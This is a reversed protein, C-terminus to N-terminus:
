WKVMPLPSFPHTRVREKILRLLTRHFGENPFEELVERVFEDYINFRILGGSLDILDAKRFLEVIWEPDGKWETLKHHEEIMCLIEDKWASRGTKELYEGALSKSHPLYDLTRDSWIGLDHFVTAVAIKAEKAEGEGALAHCFNWVRFCHNLYAEFDPGLTQRYPELLELILEPRQVTMSRGAKKKKMPTRQANNIAHDQKIDM